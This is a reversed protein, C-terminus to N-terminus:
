RAEVKKAMREIGHRLLDGYADAGLHHAFSDQACVRAHQTAPDLGAMTFTPNATRAEPTM